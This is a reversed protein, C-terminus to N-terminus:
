SFIMGGLKWKGEKTVYINQPCIGLHVMKVDNHFFSIVQILENIHIKFELESSYLLELLNSSVLYSLPYEFPETIFAL